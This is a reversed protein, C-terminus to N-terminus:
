KEKEGLAKQRIKDICHYHSILVGGDVVITQGTIYSSDDSALFIAVNAVEAPTGEREMPIADIRIQRLFPDWRERMPTAVAGPSIANVRINYKVWEAALLTTLSLVGAKAPSYAGGNVQPLHGSTSAISIINGRKQKIMYRGVARSCLFYGKLNNMTKDWNEESLNEIPGGAGGGWADNVLIDIEKFEKIADEVGKNIEQYKTIDMIVAIAKRSLSKIEEVVKNATEPNIDCVAVDAGEKAFALAIARGMGSGAGTVMAAKNKLRM